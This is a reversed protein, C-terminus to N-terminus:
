AHLIVNEELVTHLLSFDFINMILGTTIEELMDGRVWEIEKGAEQQRGESM